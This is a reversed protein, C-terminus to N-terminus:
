VMRKFRKSERFSIWGTAYFKRKFAFWFFWVCIRLARNQKTLFWNANSKESKREFALKICRPCLVAAYIAHYRQLVNVVFITFLFFVVYIFYSAEKARALLKYNKPLKKKKKKKSYVQIMNLYRYSHINVILLGCEAYHQIVIHFYISVRYQADFIIDYILRWHRSLTGGNGQAIGVRPSSVSRGQMNYLANVAASLTADIRISVSWRRLRAGGHVLHRLTHPAAPNLTYECKRGGRRDLHPRGRLLRLVGPGPGMHRTTDPLQLLRLEGTAPDVWSPLVPEISNFYIKGLSISMFSWTSSM